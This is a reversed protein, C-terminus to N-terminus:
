LRKIRSSNVIISGSSVVMAAAAVIPDLLGAVALAIGVANYGFAWFLNWRITRLTRRALDILLPIRDLSDGLITVDASEKAIDTASALTIGVDAAALSPADNIGDGVMAVVFQERLRSLLVLKESPLLRHHADDISLERAVASTPEEADGSLLVTQLGRDRLMRVTEIASRRLTDRVEVVGQIREDWAVFFRTGRKGESSNLVLGHQKMWEENGILVRKWAGGVEVEGEVGQGPITKVNRTEVRNVNRANAYAIIADAVPHNTEAELSALVAIMTGEDQESRVSLVTFEGTTLTGTKDFAVLSIEALTELAATSRILIGREASRGLALVSAIPTGIGLACPCAVVLVSLAHLLAVDASAIFLWGVYTLASLGIVIPIFTVSLRDVFVQVTSRSQQAERMLRVIEAHVTEEAKATVRLLVAGDINVTAAFVVSGPQKVVPMSEGSLNAENVSTSGKLITGDVPFREGPLVKVTQGIEVEASSVMREEDDLVVRVEDPQLEMLRKLADTAKVKASAELYRGTTVLTLTMAATDFYVGRGGSLIQYTSFGFAAFTGLAILSDMSYRRTRLEQVANRLFPYGVFVMVPLALVFLLAELYPLAEEDMGLTAWGRDYTAWSLAMINMSLFAAIGLRVLILAAAGEEGKVGVISHALSCGSCCFQLSEGDHQTRVGTGSFPLSCQDCLHGTATRDRVTM